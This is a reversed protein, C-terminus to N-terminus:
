LANKRGSFMGELCLIQKQGSSGFLLPEYGRELGLHDHRKLGQLSAKFSKTGQMCFTLSDPQLRTNM